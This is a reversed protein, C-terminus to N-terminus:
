DCTVASMDIKYVHAGNAAFADTFKGATVGITRNESVVDYGPDTIGTVTIASPQAEGLFDLLRQRAHEAGGRM